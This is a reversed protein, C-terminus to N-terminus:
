PESEADSMPEPTPPDSAPDLEPVPPYTLLHDPFFLQLNDDQTMEKLIRLYTAHRPLAVLTERLPAGRTEYAMYVEHIYDEILRFMAFNRRYTEFRDNQLFESSCLDSISEQEWQDNVRIFFIHPRLHSRSMDETLIHVPRLEHYTQRIKRLLVQVLGTVIDTPLSQSFTDHDQPTFEM